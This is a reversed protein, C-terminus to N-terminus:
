RINGNTVSLLVRNTLAKSMICGFNNADLPLSSFEFIYQDSWNDFRQVTCSISNRSNADSALNNIRLRITSFVTTDIVSTESREVRSEKIKSPRNSFRRRNSM